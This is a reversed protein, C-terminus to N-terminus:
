GGNALSFGGKHTFLKHYTTDVAQLTHGDQHHHWTTNAPKEVGADKVLNFDTQRDNTFGGPVEASEKVLGARKFDPYGDSYCVTVGDSSQYTWTGNGDVFVKGGKESIWKEPNPSNSPKTELLDKDIDELQIEKGVPKKAANVGGSIGGMAADYAINEMNFAADMSEELDGGSTIFTGAGRSVIGSGVESVSGIVAGTGIRVVANSSNLLSAGTATKSLGSTIVGGVSAGVYGTVFGTVAGIAVDKGFSGWDVNQLNGNEVYSDALNNTGAIIASSAASVAGVVLPTAAGGTAAIAVISGIVCLGTVIWKAAQAEKQRQEYEAQLDAARQNENEIATEIASAKDEIEKSVNLYSGYLTQFTESGALLEMSFDTKYSRNHGILERIMTTLNTIMDGTNTFDAATHKSELSKVSEDLDSLFTIATNHARDVDSVDNYYLTFIDRIRNMADHLEGDVDIAQNLQTQLSSRISSLESEHIVAHLSTDINRMYDQKYLLNNKEHLQILQALLGQVTGHVSSMYARISDAGSGAMETSEALATTANNLTELAALWNASQAYISSYMTDLADFNVKFAM